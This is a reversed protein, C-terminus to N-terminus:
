MTSDNNINISEYCNNELASDGSQNTDLRRIKALARGRSRTIRDHRRVDGGKTVRRRVMM